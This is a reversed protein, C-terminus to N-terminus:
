NTELWGTKPREEDSGEMGAKPATSKGGEQRRTNKISYLRVRSCTERKEDEDLVV